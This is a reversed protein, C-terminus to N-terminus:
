EYVVSIDYSIQYRIPSVANTYRLRAGVYLDKGSLGPNALSGRPFNNIRAGDYEGRFNDLSLGTYAQTNGVDITIRTTGNGAIIYHGRIPSGGLVTGNTSYSSGDPAIVMNRNGGSPIELVGFDLPQLETVSEYAGITNLPLLLM